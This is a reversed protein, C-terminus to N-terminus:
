VSHVEVRADRLVRSKIDFMGQSMKMMRKMISLLYWRIGYFILVFTGVSVLLAQWWELYIFSAVTIVLFSFFAILLLRLINM